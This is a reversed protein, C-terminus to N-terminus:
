SSDYKCDIKSRKSDFLDNYKDFYIEPLDNVLWSTMFIYSQPQTICM